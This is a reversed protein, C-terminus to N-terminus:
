EANWVFSKDIYEAQEVPFGAFVTVTCDERLLRARGVAQELQSSILWTQIMQLVENKYTNLYFSKDRYVIRQPYMTAKKIEAGARMGYLCYVTEDLNPLGVVSLNKGRLHNMGEVNGFHYRTYFKQEISKFTIVENNKCLEILLKKKDTNENLAYRSYSSDTYQVVKGRYEAKPCEYYEIIRDSYIKRYIEHSITASLIILKCDPLKEEILFTIKGNKINIYNSKLLGYVNANGGKLKELQNEDSFIELGDMMHYGRKICIGTLYSNIADPFIGSSIIDKVKQIEITETRLATRLIDEDIIIEHSELMNQSIHLLKAHTTIIHGGFKISSKCDRLYQSIKIYDADNKIIHNLKEALFKLVYRGAGIRYMNDTENIIEASIGYSNMDPTGCIDKVGAIKADRIIQEKLEHTPVAILVPKQSEQMYRIYTSTKGLATQGSIIHIKNDRVEVAKQFANQLEQYAKEVSVYKEKKLVRVERKTPKATSLMNDAHSCLDCYECSECKAVPVDDKIIATLIEKWHIFRYYKDSNKESNMIELFKQKGKEAGCMCRALLYISNTEEIEGNVFDRYLCCSEYLNEWRFNRYVARKNKRVSQEKQTNNSLKWKAIRYKVDYGSHYSETPTLTYTNDKLLHIAPLNEKLDIKMQNFIKRLQEKYHKEDTSKRVHDIFAFLIDYISVEYDPQEEPYDYQQNSYATGFIRCLLDGFFYVTRDDSIEERIFFLMRNEYETYQLGYHVAINLMMDYKSDDYRLAIVRKM